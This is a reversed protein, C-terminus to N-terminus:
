VHSQKGVPRTSVQAPLKDASFGAIMMVCGICFNNLPSQEVSNVEDRTTTM